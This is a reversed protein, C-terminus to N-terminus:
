EYFIVQAKVLWIGGAHREPAPVPTDNRLLGINLLGSGNPTLSSIGTDYVKLLSSGTITAHDLTFSDDRWAPNIFADNIVVGNLTTSATPDSFSIRWGTSITPASVNADNAFYLIVRFRTLDSDVENLPIPVATTIRATDVTSAPFYWSHSLALLNAGAPEFTESSNNQQADGLVTGADSSHVDWDDGSIKQTGIVTLLRDAGSGDTFQPLGNATSNVWYL